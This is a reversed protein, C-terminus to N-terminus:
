LVIILLYIIMGGSLLKTIYAVLSRNRAYRMRTPGLIGVLGQGQEPVVYGAVVISCDVKRFLDRTGVFIEVKEKSLKDLLKDHIQDLEDLIQALKYAEHSDAFEPKEFIHGIGFFHIDQGVLSTLAIEKTLEALAQSLYKLQRDFDQPFKDLKEKLIEQESVAPSTEELLSSVYYRYGKITPVRGGSTHPKRIYGGKELEFMENRITAPSVRLNFRRALTSSGVPKARDIYELILDKLIIKKRTNM